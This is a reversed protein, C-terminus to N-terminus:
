LVSDLVDYPACALVGLRYAAAAAAVLPSVDESFGRDWTSTDGMRRTRASGVAADLERQSVHVIGGGKVAEQFAVCSAAIDTGNLKKFAVGARVLDPELGRAAWPTLSVEAIDRSGVLEAVKAAVWGTGEGSHCLVLTKGGVEGAVGIAAMGRYPSVDVAAVVRAPARVDTDALRVWREVDFVRWRESPWIGLAERRFGDPDLKRRLRKISEAPTWHPYSPNAKAWQAPDDLDADEDASFEIWALDNAEGSLADTRM